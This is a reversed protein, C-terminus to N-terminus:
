RKKEQACERRLRMLQEETLYARAQSMVLAEGYQAIYQRIVHCSPVPPADASHAKPGPFLLCLAVVFAFFLWFPWMTSARRLFNM